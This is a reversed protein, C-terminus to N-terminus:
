CSLYQSEWGESRRWATHSDMNSKLQEYHLTSVSPEFSLKEATKVILRTFIDLQSYNQFICKIALVKGELTVGQGQARFDHSFHGLYLGSVPWVRQGFAASKFIGIHRQAVVSDRPCYDTHVIACENLEFVDKFWSLPDSETPRATKAVCLRQAWWETMMCEMTSQTTSGVRWVFKWFHWKLYSNQTNRAM